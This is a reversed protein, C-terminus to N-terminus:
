APGGLEADHADPGTPHEEHYWWPGYPSTMYSISEGCVACTGHDGHRSEPEVDEEDEVTITINSRRVKTVEANPLVLVNVGDPVRSRAFDSLERLQNPTYSDKMTIVLIDEPDLTMAAIEVRLAEFRHPPLTTVDHKDPMEEPMGNDKWPIVISM